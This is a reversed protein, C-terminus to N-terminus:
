EFWAKRRTYRKKYRYFSELIGMNIANRDDQWNIKQYYNIGIM